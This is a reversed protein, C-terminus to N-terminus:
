QERFAPLIKVTASVSPHLSGATCSFTYLSESTIVVSKSGATLSSSLGPGSVTCANVSGGVFWTITVPDGSRVLQPTAILSLTPAIVTVTATSFARNGSADTCTLTYLTTDTPTVSLTGSTRGGTNFNGGTCSVAHASTWSLLSPAGYVVTTPFATLLASVGGSTPATPTTPPTSPTPCSPGTCAPPTVTPCSPGTCSPPVLICEIGTCVLSSCSATVSATSSTTNTTTTETGPNTTTTPVPTGGVALGAFYNYNTGNGGVTLSTSDKQVVSAGVYSNYRYYTNVAQGTPSVVERVEVNCCGGSPTIESCVQGLTADVGGTFGVGDQTDNASAIYTGGSCQMGGQIVVHPQGSTTTTTTGPTTVTSTTNVLATDTVTVSATKIGLTSYIKEILAGTGSLGDTGSWEYGYSGSGGSVVATWTIASGPAVTPFSPSCSASLVPSGVHVVASASATLGPTVVTSTGGGSAGVCQYVATEIQCSDNAVNIKCINGDGVGGCAQGTPNSPCWAVGSYALNLSSVRTQGANCFFDSIDNYSLQWTGPTPSTTVSSSPGSCTVSYNTTVSLPGTSVSGMVNGGTDFGSGACSIANTSNWTLTSQAGITVTGPNANLTATPGPPPNVTVSANSSASQTGDTCTVSYVTSDAPSVILSGSTAGGTSFNTGTCSTAYSSSWSLSSSGGTDIASPVVIIGATPTTPEEICGEDIDGITAVQYTSQVTYSDGGYLARFAAEGGSNPPFPNTVVTYQYEWTVGSCGGGTAPGAYTTNPISSFLFGTFIFVALFPVLTIKM